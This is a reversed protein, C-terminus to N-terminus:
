VKKIVRTQVQSFGSIKFFYVGSQYSSLDFKITQLGKRITQIKWTKVEAGVISILSFDLQGDNASNIIIEFQNVVPNPFVREISFSSAGHTEEVPLTPKETLKQALGIIGVWLLCILLLYRKM